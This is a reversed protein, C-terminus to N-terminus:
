GLTSQVRGGGLRAQSRKRNPKIGVIYGKLWEKRLVKEVQIIVATRLKQVLYFTCTYIMVIVVNVHEM